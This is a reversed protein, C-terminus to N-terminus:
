LRDSLIYKCAIFFLFMGFLKKLIPIPLHSSIVAGVVAGTLAPIFLSKLSVINLMKSRNNVITASLSLFFMTTLSLTIAEHINLNIIIVFFPVILLGCGIGLFVAIIGILVGIPTILLWEHSFLISHLGSYILFPFDFIKMMRLSIILLFASFAIKLGRNQRKQVIRGGFIAGLVCPPIFMVYYRLHLIEPLFIFHSLSGIFSIPIITSLSTSAAKKFDFGFFSMLISVLITGGGIGIGASFLAVFFGLLVLKTDIQYHAFKSM